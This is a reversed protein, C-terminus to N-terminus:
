LSQPNNKEKKPPDAPLALWEVGEVVLAEIFNSHRKPPYELPPNLLKNVARQTDTLCDDAIRAGRKWLNVLYTLAKM